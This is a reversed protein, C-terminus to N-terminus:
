WVKIQMIYCDNLGSGDTGLTCNVIDDAADNWAVIICDYADGAGCKKHSINGNPLTARAISKVAAIDSSALEAPTCPTNIDLCFNSMNYNGNDVPADAWFAGIDGQYTQRAAYDQSNSFIREVMETAIFGATSRYRSEEGVEFSKLQLGAFAIIGIAGIAMAIVVEILTFGRQKTRHKFPWQPFPKNKM